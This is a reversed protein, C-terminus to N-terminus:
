NSEDHDLGLIERTKDTIEKATTGPTFVAKVGMQKLIIVDPEPIVGGLYVVIEEADRAKLLDLVRKTLSLHTGSLFSLGIVDVDEQIATEVIQEPTHRLGFYIVEFGANLLIHDVYLIGRDHGDLGAKGTLIRATKRTETM